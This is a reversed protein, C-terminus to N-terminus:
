FAGPEGPFGLRAQENGRLHRHCGVCSATLQFYAVVAADINRKGAARNLSDTHRAFDGTHRQYEATQRHQRDASQSL